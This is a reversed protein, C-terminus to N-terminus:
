DQMKLTIMVYASVYGYINLGDGQCYGLDFQVKMDHGKGFLSELHYMIDDLLLHSRDPDDLYWRRVEDKAIEDLEEFKYIEYTETVTRM